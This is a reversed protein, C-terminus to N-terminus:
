AGTLGGIANAEASYHEADTLTTVVVL